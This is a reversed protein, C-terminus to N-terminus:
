LITLLVPNVQTRGSDRSCTEDRYAKLLEDLRGAIGCRLEEPSLIEARWIIKLAEEVALDPRHMNVRVVTAEGEAWAELVDLQELLMRDAANIRILVPYQEASQRDQLFNSVGSRWQRELDFGAPISYSEPMAEAHLIREAKFTRLGESTECYAILYWEGNKVVLGYPCVVRVSRSGDPKDYEIKLKGLRLVAQRLKGLCEPPKQKGWWSADDFYFRERAARIDDGYEVPLTKELRLLSDRLRAGSDENSYPESVIGSLYLNVADDGSLRTLQTTYGEMLNVGGNPGTVAAIPIGAQCLTEIDRYVTRTSVELADALERAKISGRTELLALIAILRYLRM